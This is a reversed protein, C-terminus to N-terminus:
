FNFFGLFEEYAIVFNETFDGMTKILSSIVKTKTKTIFSKLM